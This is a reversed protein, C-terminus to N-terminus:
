LAGIAALGRNTWARLRRRGRNVGWARTLGAILYLAGAVLLLDKRAILGAAAALVGLLLAIFATVGRPLRPAMAAIVLAPLAVTILIRAGAGLVTLAVLLSAVPVLFASLASARAIRSHTSAHALTTMSILGHRISERSPQHSDHVHRRETQQASPC